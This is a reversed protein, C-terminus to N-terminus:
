FAPGWSGQEAWSQILPLSGQCIFSEKCSQSTAKFRVSSVKENEEAAAGEGRSKDQPLHRSTSPPCKPLRPSLRSHPLM